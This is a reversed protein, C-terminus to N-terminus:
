ASGQRGRVSDDRAWLLLLAVAARQRSVEVPGLSLLLQPLFKSVVVGREVVRQVLRQLDVPTGRPPNELHTKRTSNPTKKGQGKRM